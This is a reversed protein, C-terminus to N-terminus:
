RILTVKMYSRQGAASAQIYYIGSAVGLGHDDRGNWQVSGSGAPRQEAVLIRVRRGVLDYIVLDLRGAAPIDYYITTLPNFPNPVCPGLLLRDPSDAVATVNAMTFLESDDEAALGAADRARMRLRCEQSFKAPISWQYQGTDPLGFAVTDPWSQGGDVSLFIDIAVVGINDAASWEITQNSYTNWIEGGAPTTVSVVPAYQDSVFFAANSMDSGVNGAVDAAVVQIILNSYVAVPLQWPWSGSNTLGTALTEPFSMGGDYSLLIDVRDVGVNDMATWTVVHASGAVWDEGGNPGIVTVQPDVSDVTPVGVEIYASMTMAAISISSIRVATDSGSHDDSSPSSVDTFSTNSSSGPWPDGSDGRNQKDKLHDFGDAQELAVGYVAGANVQNSFWNANIIDEDIHWINLGGVPLKSDNLNKQRNSVLFYESGPQGDSWVKLVTPTLEVNPLDYSDDWQVVAPTVWGLVMKSWASMHVPQEPSAGDGGWSGSAMLGWNGIGNGAQSTDYLDPLGLAHGYEHCFVGIEIMGSYCSIEPQIIYDDIKIFGGSASPTSTTYAPIGWGRLFFSHSWIANNGGCEGGNGAHVIVITDVYGDDDGSNPVGDPGDNDYQSWDVGDANALTVVDLVFKGACTPYSCLGNCGSTGEYYSMTQPLRYWGYVSGTVQFQGYSIEDYYDTMTGTPWSGFLEAQLNAAAHTGVKDSADGMVVPLYRIGGVTPGAEPVAEASGFVGELVPRAMEPRSHSGFGADRLREAVEPLRAGSGPRPPMIALGTNALVLLAILVAAQCFSFRHNM